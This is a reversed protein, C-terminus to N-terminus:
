KSKNKNVSNLTITKNRVKLVLFLEVSHDRYDITLLFREELNSHGSILVPNVQRSGKWLRQFGRPHGEEVGMDKKKGTNVSRRQSPVGQVEPYRECRGECLFIPTLVHTSYRHNFLSEPLRSRKRGHHCGDSVGQLGGTEHGVVWTYGFSRSPSNPSSEVVRPIDSMYVFGPSLGPRNFDPVCLSTSIYPTNTFPRPSSPHRQHRKTTRSGRSTRPIEPDSVIDPLSGKGRVDPPRTYFGTEKSRVHLFPSGRPPLPSYQDKVSMFLITETDM